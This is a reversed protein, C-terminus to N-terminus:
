DSLDHDTAGRALARSTGGQRGRAGASASARGLALSTILALLLALPVLLLVTLDWGGVLEGAEGSAAAAIGVITM